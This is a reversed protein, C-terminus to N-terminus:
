RGRDKKDDPVIIADIVVKKVEALSKIYLKSYKKTGRPTPHPQADGILIIKKYADERWDYSDLAAFLGEYVAEPVDGGEYGRITIEELSKYFEDFDRTFAYHKVPLSKYNYGRSGYDRYLILGLRLDGFEKLGELIIPVWDRRLAKMDDQMSGTTDIVFVLDVIDKPNIRRLSNLIDNAISNPGDSYIMFDSIDNFEKSADPNYADTLVPVFPTEPEEVPLEPEPEPEALYNEIPLDVPEPEEFEDPEPFIQRQVYVHEVVPAPEEVIIQKEVKRPAGLDFMFPNDLFEGMYNGYPLSFARINIFTWRDIHLVGNRAWPYGYTITRPIYIHFSEGFENDPEVTSDILSYRSYSSDLFAGDLMRRENGNVSNWEMARYAYSDQVGSPDKTTETLMISNIGPKKRIYLHFGGENEFGPEGEQELRLDEPAIFLPSVNQAFVGVCCVVLVLFCPIRRKM